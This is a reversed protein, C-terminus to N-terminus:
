APRGAPGRIVNGVPTTRVVDPVIFAVRATPLPHDATRRVAIRKANKGNGLSKPALANGGVDSEVRGGSPCDLSPWGGAAEGQDDVIGVVKERVGERRGLKQEGQTLDGAQSL